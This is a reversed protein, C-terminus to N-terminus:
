FYEDLRPGVLYVRGVDVCSLAWLFTVVGARREGCINQLVALRTPGVIGHAFGLEVMPGVGM